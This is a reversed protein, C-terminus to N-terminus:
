YAIAISVIRQVEVVYWEINDSITVATQNVSCNLALNVSCHFFAITLCVYFDLSIDPLSTMPSYVLFPICIALSGSDIKLAHVVLCVRYLKSENDLISNSLTYAKRKGM